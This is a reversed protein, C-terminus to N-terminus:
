LSGVLIGLGIGTLHALAFVGCAVVVLRDFPQRDYWDDLRDTLARRGDLARVARRYRIPTLIPSLDSWCVPVLGLQEYGEQITGHECRRVDGPRAFDHHDMAPSHCYRHHEETATQISPM